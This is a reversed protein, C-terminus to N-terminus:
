LYECDNKLYKYFSKYFAIFICISYVLYIYLLLYLISLFNLSDKVFYVGTFIAMLVVEVPCSNKKDYYEKIMGLSFKVASYMMFNFTILFLM